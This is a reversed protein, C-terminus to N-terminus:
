RGPAAPATRGTESWRGSVDGWRNIYGNFTRTGQSSGHPYRFSFTVYNGFVTGHLPGSFPFYSDNLTGSLCSGRQTFDVSYYWTM